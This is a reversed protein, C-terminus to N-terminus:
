PVDDRRTLGFLARVTTARREYDDDSEDDERIIDGTPEPAGAPIYVRIVREQEARRLTDQEVLWEIYNPISRQEAEAARSLRARM